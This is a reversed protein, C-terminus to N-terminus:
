RTPREATHGCPRRLVTEFKARPKWPSSAQEIFDDLTPEHAIVEYGTMPEDCVTCRAFTEGDRIVALYEDSM